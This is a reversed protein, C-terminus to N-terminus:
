LINAPDRATMSTGIAPNGNCDSLAPLLGGVPTEIWRISNAGYVGLCTGRSNGLHEAGVFRVDLECIGVYVIKTM